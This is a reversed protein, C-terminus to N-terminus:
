RLDAKLADVADQLYYTMDFDDNLEFAHVPEPKAMIRAKTDIQDTKTVLTITLGRPASSHYAGRAFRYSHGAAIIGPRRVLRYWEPDRHPHKNVYYLPGPVMEYRAGIDARAHVVEYMRYEGATTAVIEVETHELAGILVSSTLTFRHDHVDGHEVIGARAIDPHWVHVRVEKDIEESVYAQLCGIGHRRWNLDGSEIYELVAGKVRAMDFAELDEAVDTNKWNYDIM